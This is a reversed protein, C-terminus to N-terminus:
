LYNWKAAAEGRALAAEIGSEQKSQKRRKREKEAPVVPRPFPKFDDARQVRGAQVQDAIFYLADIEPTWQFLRPAQPKWDEDSANAQVDIVEPDNLFMEQTYSGRWNLLTEYFM